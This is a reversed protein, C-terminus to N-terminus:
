GSSSLISGNLLRECLLREASSGAAAKERFWKGIPKSPRQDGIQESAQVMFSNYAAQFGSNSRLTARGSM